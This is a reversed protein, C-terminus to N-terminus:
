CHRSISHKPKEKKVNNMVSHFGLSLAWTEWYLFFVSSLQEFIIALTKQKAFQKISRKKLTHEFLQFLISMFLPIASYQVYIQTM